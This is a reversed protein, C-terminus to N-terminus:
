LLTGEQKYFPHADSGTNTLAGSTVLAKLARTFTGSSTIGNENAVARLENKTCGIDAFHQVYISLLDATRGGM